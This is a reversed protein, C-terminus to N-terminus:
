KLYLGFAHRTRKVLARARRFNYIFVAPLVFGKVLLWFAIFEFRDLGSFIGINKIIKLERCKNFLDKTDSLSLFDSLSFVSKFNKNQVRCVAASVSRFVSYVILEENKCIKTLYLMSKPCDIVCRLSGSASGDVSRYGYFISNTSIIKKAKSAVYPIYGNDEAWVGEPFLNTENEFLDRRFLRGCASFGNKIMVLCSVESYYHAGESFILGDIFSLKGGSVICADSKDAEAVFEKSFSPSLIDDSDVFAFYRGAAMKLGFNRASSAGGNVKEYYRFRKDSLFEKVIMGSSDTSGDNILIFEIDVGQQAKLSLLCDKLYSEKNYIPVIISIDPLLKIM